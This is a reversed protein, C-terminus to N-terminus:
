ADSQGVSEVAARPGRQPLEHRLTRVSRSSLMGLTALLTLGAAGVLTPELGAAHAIPGIAV